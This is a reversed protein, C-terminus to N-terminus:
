KATSENQRQLHDAYILLEQSVDFVFDALSQVRNLADHYHDLSGFAEKSDLLYERQSMRWALLANVALSKLTQSM